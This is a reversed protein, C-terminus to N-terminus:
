YHVEERAYPGRQWFWDEYAKLHEPYVRRLIEKNTPDAHGILRILKASFWNYYEERRDNLIEQIHERDFSSPETTM